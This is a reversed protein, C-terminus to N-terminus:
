QEVCYLWVTHPIVALTWMANVSDVEIKLGSGFDVSLCSSMFTLTCNLGFVSSELISVEKEFVFRNFIFLSAFGSQARTLGCCAM